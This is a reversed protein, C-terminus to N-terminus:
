SVLSDSLVRFWSMLSASVSVLCCCSSVIFCRLARSSSSYSLRSSVAGIGTESPCTVKQRWKLYRPEYTEKQRHLSNSISLRMAAADWDMPASLVM